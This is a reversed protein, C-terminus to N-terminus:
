VIHVPPKSHRTRHRDAALRHIRQRDTNRHQQDRLRRRPHRSTSRAPAKHAPAPTAAPDGDCGVNVTVWTVGNPLPGPAVEVTQAGYGLNRYDYDPDAQGTHDVAVAGFGNACQNSAISCPGGYASLDMTYTSISMGAPATFTIAGGTTTAYGSDPESRAGLEVRRERRGRV